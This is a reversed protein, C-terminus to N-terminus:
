RIQILNETPPSACFACPSHRFLGTGIKEAGNFCGGCLGSLSLCLLTVYSISITSVCNESLMSAVMPVLLALIVVRQKHSKMRFSSTLMRGFVLAYGALGVFGTKILINVLAMDVAGSSGTLIRFNDYYSASTGFFSAADGFALLRLDSGCYAFWNMLGNYRAM